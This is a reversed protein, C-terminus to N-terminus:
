HPSAHRHADPAASARVGAAIGHADTRDGGPAARRLRTRSRCRDALLLAIVCASALWRPVTVQQRYWAVPTSTRAGASVAHARSGDHDPAGLDSVEVEVEARSMTLQSSPRM